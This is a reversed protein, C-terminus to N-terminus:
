YGEACLFTRFFSGKAPETNPEGEDFRAPRLAFADLTTAEGDLIIESLPQGLVPSHMVGYYTFSYLPQMLRMMFKIIRALRPRATSGLAGVPASVDEVAGPRWRAHPPRLPVAGWKVGAPFDRSSSM